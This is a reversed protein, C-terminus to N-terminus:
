LRVQSSSLRSCLKKTHFSDAAFNYPRVIWAFIITPPRGRRGSIKLWLSRTPAFDGIKSRNENTAGWGYSRAFFTWNVSIPLRSRAKWHAWSLCRVNDRHGWLTAWYRLIDFFKFLLSRYSRFPVLYSPLLCLYLYGMSTISRLHGSSIGSELCDAQLHCCAYDHVRHHAAVVDWWAWLSVCAYDYVRRYAAM